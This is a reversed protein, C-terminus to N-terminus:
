YEFDETSDSLGGTQSGSGKSVALIYAKYKVGSVIANGNVDRAAAAITLDAGNPAAANYSSAQVGLADSLGFGQKAPVILVRYESINTENSSRNFSIRIVNDSVGYTVNTVSVVPAKGTLTIASSAGSLVSPGSYNSDAVSLVYIKYSTGDKIATGRVDKASADLVQSTSNGSTSAVTYHPTNNADALSFSSYYSTPVIMIRYQTIYTEDPAHTFAVRLDRGDSYDDVDSVSLDTVATVSSGNLLTIVASGASLVNTGSYTGSGISVVYVRYSVGNKLLSGRVDRTTSALVQSTVSGSIGISTYNAGAISNADSLSFSSYYSTPVVMIRYQSIYTEDAAHTFSVRLDRGDNYDNIDSVSLNSIGATSLTLVSSAASLLSSATNSSDVAMVFVRYSVGNRILAGDTDKTGSSLIQTINSGTKSIVTYNASSVANAAALNFSTYNAAKVVFVRYSSTKTEDALKNFSVFVDRGDGYDNIDNVQITGLLAATKNVLTVTSSGSSLVSASSGKGITLVYVTYGQDNKVLDGDITRSAATLTLSPNAGTVPLVAYNASAITLASSLNLGYGAKVILVRYQDVLTENGARVFSVQLDRGDGYDSVDQGTVGTAPTTNTNGTDVAPSTITVVKTASNWGVERGLAESVFRTPVMTRGKLNQGPVDLTVAKNNISANKSGITLVITTSDKTATVTQTKQDWLIRANFAEFIARLPVMTRGNVMVPPQDMSLATGDIIVKIPTDARAPVGFLVPFVM